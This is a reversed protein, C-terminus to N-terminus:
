IGMREALRREFSRDDGGTRRASWRAAAAFREQWVARQASV